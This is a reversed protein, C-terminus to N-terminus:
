AYSVRPDAIAYCIDTILYSILTLASVILSVDQIVPLDRALIASYALQGMGPISFITEVIVSGGLMGPLIAASITLLPLLSNRFVHRLIVTTERLGKARATRTYDQRLNELMASQVQQALFAFSGYSLCVVPLAVHWFYDGLYQFFSLSSTNTSHIGAAPFWDLYQPNALFGVAMSGVWILPLSFLALATFNFVRDFWRGRQVAALLGGPIAVGYVVVLSILNLALTVPLRQRILTLVPEDYELSTGFRGTVTDRLWLLYQLPLAIPQGRRNVLHLRRALYRSEQAQAQKSQLLGANMQGGSTTLGPAFRVVAFLLFTMGLLTPIMLLVRKVIYTLM